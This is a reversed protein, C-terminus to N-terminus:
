DTTLISAPPGRQNPQYFHAPGSVVPAPVQGTDIAAALQNISICTACVTDGLSAPDHDYAHAISITQVGILFAFLLAGLVTRSKGSVRLM